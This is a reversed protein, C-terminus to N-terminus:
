GIDEDSPLAEAVLRTTGDPDRSCSLEAPGSVRARARCLDCIVGPHRDSSLETM